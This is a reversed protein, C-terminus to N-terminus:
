EVRIGAAQVVPAWRARDAAFFRAFAAPTESPEVDVGGEALRRRIEPMGLVQGLAAHLRAIREAPTGAPAFLGWWTAAQITPFGAEATTPLDPLADTRRPGAIALARVKGERIFPLLPALANVFVDIRGAVLDTLAPATGRYPVHEMPIGLAQAVLAGAPHGTSGVGPSGYTLPTRQAKAHAQLEALSRVPLGTQVLIVNPAAGILGVPAFATDIDFPLRAHVLSPITLGGSGGLLLTNGDPAAKAVLDAALMGGAGARNEIVFNTGLIPAMADTVLRGVIDNTGGPTFGIILRIPRDPWPAQALAPKALGPQALPALPALLLPRRRM